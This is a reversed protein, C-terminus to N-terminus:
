IYGLDRLRTTLLETELEVDPVGHPEPEAYRVGSGFISQVATGPMSAAPEVGLDALLTPMLDILGVRDGLRGATVRRSRHIWMGEYRHLGTQYSWSWLPEDLATHVMLSEDAPVLLIDPSKLAWPGAFAEERRLVRAFAPTGSSPLRVDALLAVAEDVVADFDHSSVAGLRQRGKLNVNIGYSGPVPM